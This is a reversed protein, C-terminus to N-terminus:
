DEYHTLFDWDNINLEYFRASSYRYDEPSGCLSAQVANSHIYELKQLFVKASRLEIGLSNRQWVQYKRDKANVELKPLLESRENRLQKLIQQSTFRLFDRQVDEHKHDGLVQWILHFHTDMLVFATVKIRQTSVLFQLSDLIIRKDIDRSLVPLWDNATVTIFEPYQKVVM